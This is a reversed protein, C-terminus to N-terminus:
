HVTVRVRSVEELLPVLNRLRERWTLERLNAAFAMERRAAPGMQLLHLIAAAFDRPDAAVSVGIQTGASLGEAVQPTAVVPVGAALAELVKNQVGRATQLPATAVAASWLFPRVDPVTGTVTISDDALARVSATPSAGVLMLSAGPQHQKVLPWVERAMWIAGEENPAYNMVGCFVVTQSEAPPAQPRFMELDVGNEMVHLRATADLAQLIQKERVNVILTARAHRMAEVEFRSLCRAERAYILRRPLHSSAALAAWKASDADVMDLVCPIHLLPPEMAFRVMGSCFALVVDPPNKALVRAIAPAVEPSDLLAHTLPRRTPLQVLGRAFNQIKAVRAVQVSATFAQMAGVQAAEDEDHVLSIVDTQAGEAALTRLIHYARLRDGRNPAYPLRHTLFLVRLSVALGSV